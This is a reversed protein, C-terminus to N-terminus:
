HVKNCRSFAALWYLRGQGMSAAVVWCHLCAGNISTQMACTAYPSARSDASHLGVVARCRVTPDAPPCGRKEEDPTPEWSVETGVSHEGWPNDDLGMYREVAMGLNKFKNPLLMLQIFAGKKGRVKSPLNMVTGWVPTFSKSGSNVVEAPDNTMKCYVTSWFTEKTLGVRARMERFLASDFADEILGERDPRDFQRRLAERIVPQKMMNRLRPGVPMM